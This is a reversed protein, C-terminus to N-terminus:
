VMAAPVIRGTALVQEGAATVLRLRGAEDIGAFIGSLDGANTELTIQQGIGWAVQQWAASVVGSEAALWRLLPGTLAQRVAERKPLAVSQPLSDALCGAPWRTPGDPAHALNIGIGVLLGDARNELLLGAVKRGALLVDNPWKLRLSEPSVWGALAERVALAAAFGALPVAEVRRPLAYTIYLNGPPSEWGRGRQGRGATQTAATVAFPPAEGATLLDAATDSTSALIPYTFLRPSCVPTDRGTEGSCIRM